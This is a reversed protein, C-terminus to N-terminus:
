FGFSIMSGMSFLQFNSHVIEQYTGEAGLSFQASFHHVLGVRVMKAFDSFQSRPLWGYGLGGSGYTEWSGLPLTLRLTPMAVWGFQNKAWYAGARVGVSANMGEQGIGVRLEPDVGGGLGYGDHASVLAPTFNFHWTAQDGDAHAAWPFALPFFALVVCVSSRIFSRNIKFLTNKM